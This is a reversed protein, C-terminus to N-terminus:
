LTDAIIEKLVTESKMEVFQKIAEFAIEENSLNEIILFAQLLTITEPFYL